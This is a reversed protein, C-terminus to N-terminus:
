YVEDFVRGRDSRTRRIRLAGGDLLGASALLAHIGKKKAATLAVLGQAVLIRNEGSLTTADAVTGLAVLDVFGRRFALRHEPKLRETLADLVKFAVGAGCLERFPVNADERYPNVVAIADPTRAVQEEFLHHICKDRPYDRSTQNWEVVIQYRESESLTRNM